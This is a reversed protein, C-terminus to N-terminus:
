TRYLHSGCSERIKLEIPLVTSAPPTDPNDAQSDLLRMAYTGMLETPVHITSLAPRVLSAIETDDVSVMAIDEPIRIGHDFLFRMAGIAVEDNVAFIATPRRDNQMILKKASEYGEQTSNQLGAQVSFGSPTPLDNTQLAKMYGIHREDIRGIHAIERHGLGILHMVARYAADERDFLVAPLDFVAKELCVINKIRQTIKEFLPIHRKNELALHPSLLILSSVEEDHIHENFLVPDHLQNIFHVFRVRKHAHYAEDYIGALIAGYYPRKLMATTGGVIVGIQREAHHGESKLSQAFKNPRYGLEDIAKLVRQKTQENVIRPGNNIVYSVVASSVGAHKAVDKQTVSNKSRPM